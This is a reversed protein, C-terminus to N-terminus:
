GFILAHSLWRALLIATKWEIFCVHRWEIALSAALTTVRQAV